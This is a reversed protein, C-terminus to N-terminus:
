TKKKPDLISAIYLLMNMKEVNRWYKDFKDKM